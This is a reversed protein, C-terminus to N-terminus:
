ATVVHDISIYSSHIGCGLKVVLEVLEEVSHRTTPQIFEIHNTFALMLLEQVAHKHRGHPDNAALTAALELLDDM